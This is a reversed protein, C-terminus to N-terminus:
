DNGNNMVLFTGNPLILFFSVGFVQGVLGEYECDIRCYPSLSDLSLSEYYFINPIFTYFHIGLSLFINVCKLNHLLLFYTRYEYFAIKVDFM